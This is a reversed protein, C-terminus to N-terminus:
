NIERKFNQFFLTLFLFFSVFILSYVLSKTAEHVSENAFFCGILFLIGFTREYFNESIAMKSGTGIFFGYFTAFIITGLYGGYLYSYSIISMSFGSPTYSPTGRWALFDQFLPSSIKYINYELNIIGNEYIGLSKLFIFFPELWLALINTLPININSLYILELYNITYTRNLSLLFFNLGLQVDEGSSFTRLVEYVFFIALSFILFTFIKVRSINSIYRFNFFIIFMLGWILLIRFGTVLNLFILFILFILNKNSYGSIKLDYAIFIPWFHLILYYIQGLSIESIRSRLFFDVIGINLIQFTKYIAFLFFINSTFRVFKIVFSEDFFVKSKKFYNIPSVFFLYSLVSILTFVLCVFFLEIARIISLDVYEIILDQSSSFISILDLFSFFLPLILLFYSLLKLKNFEEFFSKKFEPEFM